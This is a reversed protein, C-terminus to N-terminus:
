GFDLGDIIIQGWPIPKLQIWEIASMIAALGLGFAHNDVPRISPASTGPTLFPVYIASGDTPRRHIPFIVNNMGLVAIDPSTPRAALKIRAVIEVIEDRNTLIEGDKRRKVQRAFIGGYPPNYIDPYGEPPTITFINPIPVFNPPSTQLSANERTAILQKVKIVQQWAHTLSQPDDGELHITHKAEIYCYVAEAPIFELRGYEKQNRLSVLPFRAKDYIIIDDGAFEGNTSVVYGRKVGYQEPLFSALMECLAIEFEDGLEFNIGAKIGSFKEEFGRSLTKIYDDYLYKAKALIDGQSM